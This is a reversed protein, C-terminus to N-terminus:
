WSARDSELVWQGTDDFAFAWTRTQVTKDDGAPKSLWKSSECREILTSVWPYYVNQRTIKVKAHRGESWVSEVGRIETRGCEFLIKADDDLKVTPSPTVGLCRAPDKVEQGYGNFCTTTRFMGTEVIAKGCDDWERLTPGKVSRGDSSSVYLSCTQGGKTLGYPGVPAKLLALAVEATLRPRLGTFDMITDVAAQNLSVAYVSGALLLVFAGVWLWRSRKRGGPLSPASAAEDVGPLETVGLAEGCFRCKIAADQIEEACYPCKKM